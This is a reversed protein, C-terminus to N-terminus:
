LQKDDLLLHAPYLADSFQLLPLQRQAEQADSPLMPYQSCSNM